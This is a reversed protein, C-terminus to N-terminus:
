SARGQQERLIPFLSYPPQCGEEGPFRGEKDPLVAQMVAYNEHGFYQGAQITYEEQAIASARIMKLPLTLMLLHIMEGDEFPKGAAIMLRSLDNLYPASGSGIILLEPLGKIYNGITYSFPFGEDGACSCVGIISRGQRAIHEATVLHFERNTITM